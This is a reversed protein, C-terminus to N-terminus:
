RRAPQASPVSVHSSSQAPRGNRASGRQGACICGKSRCFAVGAIPTSRTHQHCAGCRRTGDPAFSVCGVPSQRAVDTRKLPPSRAPVGLLPSRHCRGRHAMASPTPDEYQRRGVMALDCGCACRPAGREDGFCYPAGVMTRECVAPDRLLSAHRNTVQVPAVWCHRVQARCTPSRQADAAHHNHSRAWSRRRGLYSTWRTSEVRQAPIRARASGVLPSTAVATSWPTTSAAVMGPNGVPQRPTCPANAAPSSPRWTRSASM